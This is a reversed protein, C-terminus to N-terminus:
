WYAENVVPIGKEKFKQMLAKWQPERLSNASFRPSQFDKTTIHLIVMDARPNEFAASRIDVLRIMRTYWPYFHNKIVLSGGSMKFYYLQSGVPFYFLLIFALTLGAKEAATLNSHAGFFLLAAFLSLFCLGIGYGSLFWKGAFKEVQLDTIEPDSIPQRLAQDAPSAPYYLQLARKIGPTNRYDRDPILIRKGRKRDIIIFSSRRDFASGKMRGLLDITIIDEKLVTTHSFLHNIVIRDSWVKLTFSKILQFTISLLGVGVLVYCIASGNERVGHKIVTMQSPHTLGYLGFTLPGAAIIFGLYFRFSFKSSVM